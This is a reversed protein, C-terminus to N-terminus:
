QPRKPGVGFRGEHRQRILKRVHDPLMFTPRAVNGRQLAFAEGGSGAGSETPTALFAHLEGTTLNVAAGVIEGASNISVAEVLFWSSGAPILTNLDTM